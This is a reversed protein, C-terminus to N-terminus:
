GAHSPSCNHALAVINARADTDKNVKKILIQKKEKVVKKEM